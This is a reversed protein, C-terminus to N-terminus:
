LLLLLFSFVLLTGPVWSDLRQLPFGIGTCYWLGPLRPLGVQLVMYYIIFLFYIIESGMVFYQLGGTGQYLRVNHLEARPQFAGPSLSTNSTSYFHFSLVPGYKVKTNHSWPKCPPNKYFWM